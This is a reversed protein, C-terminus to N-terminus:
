RVQKLINEFERNTQEPNTDANGQQSKKFNEVAIGLQYLREEQIVTSEPDYLSTTCSLQSNTPSGLRSQGGSFSCVSGNYISMPASPTQSSNLLQQNPRFNAISRPGAAKREIGKKQEDDTNFLESQQANFLNLMHPRLRSQGKNNAGKRQPGKTFRFPSPEKFQAPSTQPVQRKTNETENKTNESAPAISLGQKM